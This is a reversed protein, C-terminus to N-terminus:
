NEPSLDNIEQPPLRNLAYEVCARYFYKDQQSFTYSCEPKSGFCAIISIGEPMILLNKVNGSFSDPCCIIKNSFM